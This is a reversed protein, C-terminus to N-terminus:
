FKLPTMCRQIVESTRDDYCDPGTENVADELTTGDFGTGNNLVTLVFIVELNSDLCTKKKRARTEV